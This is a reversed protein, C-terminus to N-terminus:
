LKKGYKYGNAEMEAQRSEPVRQRDGSKPHVMWKTGVIAKGRGSGAENPLVDHRPLPSVPKELRGRAEDSMFPKYYKVKENQNKFSPRNVEAEYLNSAKQEVEEKTEGSFQVGWLSGNPLTVYGIWPKGAKGSMRQYTVVDVM